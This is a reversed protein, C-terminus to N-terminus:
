AGLLRQFMSLRDGLDQVKVATSLDRGSSREDLATSPSAKVFDTLFHDFDPGPLNDVRWAESSTMLVISARFHGRHYQLSHLDALQVTVTCAARNKHRPKSLTLRDPYLTLSGQDGQMDLLFVLKARAAQPHEPDPAEPEGVLAHCYPCPHGIVATRAGCNPCEM